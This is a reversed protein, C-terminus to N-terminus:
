GTSLVVHPSADSARAAAGLLCTSLQFLLSTVCLVDPHRSVWLSVGPFGVFWVLRFGWIM